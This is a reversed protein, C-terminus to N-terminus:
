NFNTFIELLTFGLYYLFEDRLRNFLADLGLLDKVFTQKCTHIDNAFLELIVFDVNGLNKNGCACHIHANLDDLGKEGCVSNLRGTLDADACNLAVKM